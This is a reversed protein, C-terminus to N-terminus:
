ASGNRPINGSGPANPMQEVKMRELRAEMALEARRVKAKEEAEFWKIAMEEELRRVANLAESEAESWDIRSDLGQQERRLRLEQQAKMMDSQMKARSEAADLQMKQQIAAAKAQKEPDVPPNKAAAEAQARAARDIEEPSGFYKGPDGLPSLEVLDHLTQGYQGLSVVPNQPGLQMLIQEQTQKVVMLSQLKEDRNGTGLGVNVSVLMNPDFEGPNVSGYSGGRGQYAVEGDFNGQLLVLLKRFLPKILTEAYSRAYFEFKKQALGLQGRVATETTSQLADPDLAMAQRSVGTSMEKREEFYKLVAISKDGTWPVTLPVVADARRARVVGNYRNDQLEGMNVQGEVALHRPNNVLTTNDLVNRVLQTDVDQTDETYEALSDGIVVHPKPIPSGICYPQGEV